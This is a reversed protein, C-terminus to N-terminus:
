EKNKQFDFIIEERKQSLEEFEKKDRIKDFVPFEVLQLQFNPDEFIILHTENSLLNDIIEKRKRQKYVLKEEKWLKLFEEESLKFDLGNEYFLKAKRNNLLFFLMKEARQKRDQYKLEFWNVVRRNKPIKKRIQSWNRLTFEIKSDFSERALAKPCFCFQFSGLLLLLKLFKKLLNRFFLFNM